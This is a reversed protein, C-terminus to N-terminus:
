WKRRREEGRETEKERKMWKVWRLDNKTAKTIFVLVAPARPHTISSTSRSVGRGRLTQCHRSARNSNWGRGREGGRGGVRTEDRNENGELCKCLRGRWGIGRRQPFLPLSFLRADATLSSWCWLSLSLCLSLSGSWALTPRVVESRAADRLKRGHVSRRARGEDDVARASKEVRRRTTRPLLHKLTRTITGHYEVEVTPPSLREYIIRRKSRNWRVSSDNKNKKKKKKEKKHTSSFKNGRGWKTSGQLTLNSNLAVRSAATNFNRKVNRIKLKLSYSIGRSRLNWRQVSEEVM